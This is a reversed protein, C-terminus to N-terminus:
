KVKWLGTYTWLIGVVDKCKVCRAQIGSMHKDGQDDVESSPDIFSELIGDCDDEPCTFEIKSM